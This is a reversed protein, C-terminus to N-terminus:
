YLTVGEGKNILGGSVPYRDPSQYNFKKSRGKQSPSPLYAQPFLPLLSELSSTPSPSSASNSTPTSSSCGDQLLVALLPWDVEKDIELTLKGKLKIGALRGMDVGM